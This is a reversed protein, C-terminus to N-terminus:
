VFAFLQHLGERTFVCFNWVWEEIKNFLVKKKVSAEVKKQQM